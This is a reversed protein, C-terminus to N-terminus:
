RGDAAGPFGALGRATQVARIIADAVAEAALSGITGINADGALEGTALIFLTDGDSPTHSPVITRAMGDHAMEVVKLAQAKTLRANTAVVGITTADRAPAPQLVGRRVLAFPDELGKGDATRVGALPKGTRFDVVSGVANVAVIAAVVLGRDTILAASGIGGKMARSAGLMKGVTAGAGAGVSGEEIAGSRAAQAARYGCDADPTIEPKGGVGLDFLIAGPVIPVPRAATRYGIKRESLYRM